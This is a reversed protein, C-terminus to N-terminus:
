GEGQGMAFVIRWIVVTWYALALGVCWALLFVVLDPMSTVRALQWAALTGVLLAPAAVRRLWSPLRRGGRRLTGTGDNSLKAM